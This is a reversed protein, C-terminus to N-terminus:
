NGSLRAGLKEMVPIAPEPQKLNYYGYLSNQSHIFVIRGNYKDQIVYQNQQVTDISTHSLQAYNEIMAQGSNKTQPIIFVKFTHDKVNYQAQYANYLFDYGLFQENIYSLSHNERHDAPFISFVAPRKHPGEWQKVVKEALSRVAEQTRQSTDHSKIKIYYTKTYFNLLSQELYGEAGMDIFQVGSPREQSYIGYADAPTEHQYIRLDIYADPDQKLTYNGHYLTQFDYSLYLDAAGNIIEFLTQPTYTSISDPKNWDELHPFTVSNNQAFSLPACLFLSLIVLIMQRKM